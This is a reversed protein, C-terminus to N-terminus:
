MFLSPYYKNCAPLLKDPIVAPGNSPIKVRPINKGQALEVTIYIIYCM